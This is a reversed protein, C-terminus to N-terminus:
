SGIKIENEVINVLPLMIEAEFPSCLDKEKDMNGSVGFYYMNHTSHPIRIYNLDHIHVNFSVIM